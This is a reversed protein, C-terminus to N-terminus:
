PDTFKQAWQATTTHTENALHVCGHSTKRAALLICCCSRADIRLLLFFNVLKVFRM